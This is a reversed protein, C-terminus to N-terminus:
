WKLDRDMAAAWIVVAWPELYQQAMLCIRMTTLRATIDAAENLTWAALGNVKDRTTRDTKRIVAQLDRVSLGKRAMEANLNPYM